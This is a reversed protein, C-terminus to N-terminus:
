DEIRLQGLSRCKLSSQTAAERSDEGIQRKHMPLRFLVNRLVREGALRKLIQALVASQLM